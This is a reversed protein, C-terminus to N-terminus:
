TRAKRIRTQLLKYVQEPPYEGIVIIDTFDAGMLRFADERTEVRRCIVNGTASFTSPVRECSDNAGIAYISERSNNIILIM